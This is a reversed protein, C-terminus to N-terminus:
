DDDHKHGLYEEQYTPRVSLNQDTRWAVYLDKLFMKIMYRRAALDIHKKSEDKWKESNTLRDKYPYYFKLAYENQKMIFNTAIVGCLKTRLWFNFPCLFGKKKKDGRIFEETTVIEKKEGTGKIVKGLVMGPNLGAFQWLKSVTTAKEIDFESLCVAATIHACGEIPEFFNTWIPLKTIIDKIRKDIQSEKRNTDKWIEKLLIYDPHSIYADDLGANKQFEGNAKIRLRGATRIRFDQFDYLTHVLAKLLLKITKDM